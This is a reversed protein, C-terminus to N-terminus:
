RGCKSKKLFKFGGGKTKCGCSHKGVPRPDEACAGGKHGRRGKKGSSTARSVIVAKGQKNFCAKATKTQTMRVSCCKKSKKKGKAM